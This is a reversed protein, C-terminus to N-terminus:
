WKRLRWGAQALDLDPSITTTPRRPMWPTPCVVVRPGKRIHDGLVAAWWAFTSNSMIFYQATALAYFDDVESRKGTPDPVVTPIGLREFNAAALRAFDEDDSTVFLCRICVSEALEALTAEYFSFPLAFGHFIYDGRRIHIAAVGDGHELSHRAPLRAALEECVLDLSPEFYSPHQFLGRLHVIRPSDDLSPRPDTLQRVNQRILTLKAAKRNLGASARHLLRQEESPSSGHRIFFRERRSLEYVPVELLDPLAVTRSVTRPAPEIHLPGDLARSLTRGATYQFLQNGVGGTLSVVVLPQRPM